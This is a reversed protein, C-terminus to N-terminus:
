DAAAYPEVIVALDWDSDPRAMGRAHSGFHRVEKVVGPLARHLAAHFERLAALEAPAPSPM